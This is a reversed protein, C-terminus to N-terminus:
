EIVEDALALLTPPIDFGLGKATKVNIVLEFKTAQMVPLDAPKEGRLIRGTYIGVERYADIRSSGYSMLGGAEVFSRDPYLVPLKHLAALEALRERLDFFVTDPFVLFATAQARRLDDFVADVEHAAVIHAVRVELRMSTAAAQAETVDSAANPNGPNVLIGIVSSPLMGKLLQLQKAVLINALFSVGTVNGGPQNMSAVLGFKVPDAGIGFVIPISSTAAKVALAAATAGGTAIVAVRRDVLEAALAPLRGLQNDAWRYEIAINRGEVFGSAGLGQRFGDVHIRLGAASGPGLFGITPMTPEKAPQQARAARPWSAAGGLLTIFERRKLRHFHM